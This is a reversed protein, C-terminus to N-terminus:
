YIRQWGRHPKRSMRSRRKDAYVGHGVLRTKRLRPAPRPALNLVPPRHGLTIGRAPGVVRVGVDTRLGKGTFRITKSKVDIFGDTVGLDFSVNKFPLKGGIFTLTEQPSGKTKTMGRPPYKSTIPKVLTYPPPIIKYVDGMKWAITGDPYKPRRAVAKAETTKPSTRITIDIPTETKLKTAIKTTAKVLTSTITKAETETVTGTDVWERTIPKTVNIAQTRIEEATKGELSAKISERLAADTLAIVEPTTVGKVEPLTRAVEKTAEVIEPTSTAGPVTAWEQLAKPGADSLLTVARTAAITIPIKSGVTPAKPLGTRPPSLPKTEVLGIKGRNSTLRGWEVHMSGIAANLEEQLRAAEATKGAARAEILKAHLTKVSGLKAQALRGEAKTLEYMLDVWKSPDTPYKAQAAKLEAEASQVAKTLAKIDSAKTQQLAAVAMKSNEVMDRGLNNIIPVAEPSIRVPIQKIGRLESNAAYLNTTFEKAAIRLKGERDAIAIQLKSPIARGQTKLEAAEALQKIYDTQAKIMDKYSDALKRNAISVGPVKSPTGYAEGLTKAMDDAAALEAKALNSAATKIPSIKAKIAAIGHRAAKILPIVSAVDLAISIGRWTPSMKDWNYITGYVPVLGIAYSKIMDKAQTEQEEPSLSLLWGLYNFENAFDKLVQKKEQDSLQYWERKGLYPAQRFIYSQQINKPQKFFLRRWDDETPETVYKVEGTQEDYGVYTASKPIEGKSQLEKFLDEGKVAAPAVTYQGTAKVEEQQQPTLKEWEAKPVWVDPKIEVNNAEFEAIEAQVKKNFEDVGVKKLTEQYDPPLKDFVDRAVWEGTDLKVHNAEFETIDAAAKTEWEKIGSLLDAQQKAIQAEADVAAKAIEARIDQLQRDIDAKTKTQWEDVQQFYEDRAKIVAAKAEEGTRHARKRAEEVTAIYAATDLQAPRTFPLVVKRSEIELAERARAKAAEAEREAVGRQKRIEAQRAEAEQAMQLKAAEAEEEAKRGAEQAQAEAEAEQQRAQAELDARARAAEAAIRQRELEAASQVESITTIETM